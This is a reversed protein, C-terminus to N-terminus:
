ERDVRVNVANLGKPGKEIEFTVKNNEKIPDILSNIHVFVRQQTALDNIFGYGKSDNFFSVIGKRVTEVPDSEKAKHGSIDIDEANVKVRLSLDPPTSTIQGYEDVYAIMDDLNNGDRSNKKRELKKKEKDKRNKEKRTRVEKKNWSEQTRGM